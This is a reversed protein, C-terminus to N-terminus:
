TILYLIFSFLAAGISYYAFRSFGSDHLGVRLVSIGLYGGAFATIGSIFYGLLDVASAGGIGVGVIGILDYVLSFLMAPIGLFVAWNVANKSDAGRVSAYSLIMGTRSIGPFASLAGLVGMVIGDLGSMTRSDRNGRSTHEALLLVLGNFLFFALLLLLNSEMYSTAFRLLLGAILCVSATKLLRLDYYSASDSFLVKRRRYGSGFKHERYLRFLSERCGSLIAFLVGIHVLLEQLPAKTGIGFLYRLLAQHADSSVPLFETIGSILGYLINKLILM